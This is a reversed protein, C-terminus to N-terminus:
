RGGETDLVRKAEVLLAFQDPNGGKDPHLVAAAARYAKTRAELDYRVQAFTFGPAHAAIFETAEDTTMRRASKTPADIARWGTYQEGRKTVGYRDVARLAELALAIARINAQWGPMDQGYWQEYADTAYTLPGFKSEFSVRVGPFGVKANARLMGDRRIDGETVDVQLVVLTAGLLDTERSLLDLTDAWKARFRATSARPDTVPDTWNGLPRIEYRV